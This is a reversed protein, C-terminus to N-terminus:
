RGSLKWTDDFIQGSSFDTGGFILFQSTAADWITGFQERAPPSNVPAMQEWNSGDWSWTATQDVGGSGGGFVVVRNLQRDFAGTTFYLTDPQTAPSQQTWDQGDWTWTNQTIWNDSLGGFVVVTKHVPDAVAVAGARPYPSNAPNLAVWDSGNWQFTDRSYFRTGRGGYLDAHGNAPDTFMMSNSAGPPVNKVKTNKWKLSSGDFLWTDSLRGFGTSGGFLVLQHTHRDYAMAAGFRATPAVRTKLLIWVNGDFAWTENSFAGDADVGGFVIVMKSIPDYASAFAARQPFSRPLQLENWTLPARIAALSAPVLSLVILTLAFVCLAVAHRFKKGAKMQTV